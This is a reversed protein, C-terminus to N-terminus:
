PLSRIQNGCFQFLQSRWLSENTSKIIKHFSFKYNEVVLLFKGRISSIIKIDMIFVRFVESVSFEICIVSVTVALVPYLLYVFGYILKQRKTKNNM